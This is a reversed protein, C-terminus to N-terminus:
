TIIPLDAGLGDARSGALRPGRYHKKKPLYKSDKEVISKSTAVLKLIITTISTINYMINAEAKDNNCMM